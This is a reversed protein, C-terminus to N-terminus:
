TVHCLSKHFRFKLKPKKKKELENLYIDCSESKGFFFIEKAGLNM